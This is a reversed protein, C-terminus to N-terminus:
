SSRLSKMQGASALDKGTQQRKAHKPM